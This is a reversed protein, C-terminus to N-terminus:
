DREIEYVLDAGNDIDKDLSNSETKFALRKNIKYKLSIVRLSSFLGASYNISLNKGFKKSINVTTTNKLPNAQDNPDFYTTDGVSLDALGFTKKVKNTVDGIVNTGGGNSSMLMSLAALSKVSIESTGFVLYSLITQQSMGPPDSFFSIIPKNLSGRVLIGIYVDEKGEYMQSLKNGEFQNNASTLKVTQIKQQARIDIGPDTILSGTYILRGTKITLNKDYAHYKGKVTSLEGSAVMPRNLEQTIQLKGTLGTRLNQYIVNIDNGLQVQLNMILNLPTDARIARQPSQGVVKIESPLEVINSFDKPQIKAFPVDILGNLTMVDDAYKFDINPSVTIKYEVLKSLNLNEGQLHLQVPFGTQKFDVNGTLHGIGIGSRFQGQYTLLQKPNFHLNLAIDKLDLALKPIRLSGNAITAKAAILPANLQGNIDIIGNLKGQTIKIQPAEKIFESINEIDLQIKGNVTQSLDTYSKFDPVSFSGSLASAKSFNMSLQALLQKKIIQTNLKLDFQPVVYDSVKLNKASLKLNAIDANLNTAFWGDISGIRVNNATLKKINLNANIQPRAINGNVFGNSTLAGALEPTLMNLSPINVKWTLDLYDNIEGKLQANANAIMLESPEIILKKNKYNARIIGSLPYQYFKGTIDELAFKFEPAESWIGQSRITFNIQADLDPFLMKPNFAQTKLLVNWSINPRLQYQIKGTANIQDSVLNLDYQNAVNHILAFHQVVISNNLAQTLKLNKIALKNLNIHTLLSAIERVSQAQLKTNAQDVNPGAKLLRINGNQINIEQIYLVKAFLQKPDWDLVVYPLDAIIQQNQYQLDFLEIRSALSGKVEHISLNPVLYQAVRAIIRLGSETTILLYTFSIVVLLTYTLYKAWRFFRKM